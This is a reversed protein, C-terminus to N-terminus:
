WCSASNRLLRAKVSNSSPLRTHVLLAAAVTAALGPGEILFFEDCRRNQIDIEANITSRETARSQQRVAVISKISAENAHAIALGRFNGCRPAQHGRSCVSAM